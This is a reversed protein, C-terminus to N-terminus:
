PCPSKSLRDSPGIPQHSLWLAGLGSTVMVTYGLPLEVGTARDGAYHGRDESTQKQSLLRTRRCLGTLEQGQSHSFATLEFRALIFKKLDIFNIGSAM